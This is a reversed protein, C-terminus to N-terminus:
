IAPSIPSFAGTATRTFGLTSALVWAFIVVPLLSFLNPMSKSRMVATYSIIAFSHGFRTIRPRCICMPECSVETAGNTSATSFTFGRTCAIFSFCPNCNKLM